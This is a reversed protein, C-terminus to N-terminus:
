APALEWEALAQALQAGVAGSQEPMDANIWAPEVGGLSGTVFLEEARELRRLTLPEVAM